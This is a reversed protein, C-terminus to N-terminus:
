RIPEVELIQMKILLSRILTNKICWIVNIQTGGLGLKGYTDIRLIGPRVFRSCVCVPDASVLEPSEQVLACPYQPTQDALGELLRDIRLLEGIIVGIVISLLPIIINGTKGTNDIGVFFTVLGLGTIVSEQIKASLRNGVLLGLTSGIAVTIINLITGGM